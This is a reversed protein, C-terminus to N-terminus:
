SVGASGDRAGEVAGECSRRACVFAFPRGCGRAPGSASCPSPEGKGFALVRCRLKPRSPSRVLSV